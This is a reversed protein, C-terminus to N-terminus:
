KGPQSKLFLLCPWQRRDETFQWLRLGALMDKVTTATGPQMTIAAYCLVVEKHFYGRPLTAHPSLTAGVGSGTDVV